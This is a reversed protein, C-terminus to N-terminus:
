IYYSGVDIDITKSFTFHDYSIVLLGNRRYSM